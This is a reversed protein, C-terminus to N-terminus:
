FLLVASGVGMVVAALFAAMMCSGLVSPLPPCAMAEYANTDEVETVVEEETADSEDEELRKRKLTSSRMYLTFSNFDYYLSVGLRIAERRIDSRERSNLHVQVHRTEGTGAVERLVKRWALGAGVSKKRIMAERKMRRRCQPIYTNEDGSSSDNDELAPHISHDSMTCYSNKM